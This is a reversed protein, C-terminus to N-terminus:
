GQAVKSQRKGGAPTSYWNGHMCYGAASRGPTRVEGLKEVPVDAWSVGIRATYTTQLDETSLVNVPLPQVIRVKFHAKGEVLGVNARCGGWLYGYGGESLKSCVTGNERLVIDLTADLPNMVVTPPPEAAAAMATASPSCNRDVSHHRYRAEAPAPFPPMGWVTHLNSNVTQVQSCLADIICALHM